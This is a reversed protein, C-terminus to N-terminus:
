TRLAAGTSGFSLCSALELVGEGEDEEDREDMADSADGGVVPRLMVPTEVAEECGGTEWAGGAVSWM